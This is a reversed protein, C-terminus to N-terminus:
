WLRDIEGPYLHVRGGIFTGEAARAAPSFFDGIAIKGFADSPFPADATGGVVVTGPLHRWGAREYFGQLSRDCTFIGLDAGSAAIAAHAAAVLRSGFGEGRHGPDTVVASLGSVAFTTGAHSLDKSLIDLAALVKRGHVLLMSLPRLAPDHWAELGGAGDTPWAREQIAIVQSRLPAPVEAEPYWLIRM